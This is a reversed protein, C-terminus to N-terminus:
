KVLVWRDGKKEIIAFYVDGGAIHIKHKLIESTARDTGSDGPLLIAKNDSIECAFWAAHPDNSAIFQEPGKPSHMGLLRDISEQDM